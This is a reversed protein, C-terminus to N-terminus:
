NVEAKKVGARLTWFGIGEMLTQVHPGAFFEQVSMEGTLVHILSSAVMLGSVLYTKKGRLWDM